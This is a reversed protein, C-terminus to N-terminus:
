NTSWIELYRKIESKFYEVADPKKRKLFILDISHKDFSNDKIDPHNFTTLKGKLVGDRAVRHPLLGVGLSEETLSKVTEINDCTISETFKFKKLSADVNNLYFDYYILRMKNSRDKIPSIYLGFYDEYVREHLIGKFLHANVVIGLDIKDNKLDTIINKTKATKLEIKFDPHNQKFFNFFGPYFYRAISDYTGLTIQGGILKERQRINLELQNSSKLLASAHQYLMDGEKTTKIGNKSRILLQCGLIAELQQIVKSMQPQSLFAKSSGDKISGAEVVKLFYEMKHLHDTLKM